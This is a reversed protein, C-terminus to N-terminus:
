LTQIYVTKHRSMFERINGSLFGSRGSDNDKCNDNDDDGVPKISEHTDRIMVLLYPGSRLM